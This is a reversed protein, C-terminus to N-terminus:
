KPLIAWCWEAVSFSLCGTINRPWTVEVNLFSIYCVKAKKHMPDYKELTKVLCNRYQRAHYNGCQFTEHDANLFHDSSPLLLQYLHLLRFFRQLNRGYFREEATTYTATFRLCSYSPFGRLESGLNDGERGKWETVRFKDKDARCCLSM